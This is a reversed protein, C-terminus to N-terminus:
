PLQRNIHICYYPSYQSCHAIGILLFSVIFSCSVKGTGPGGCIYMFGPSPLTMGDETRGTKISKTMFEKINDELRGVRNSMSKSKSLENKKFCPHLVFQCCELKDKVNSQKDPPAVYTKDSSSQSNASSDSSKSQSAKAVEDDSGKDNTNVVEDDSRRNWSATENSETLSMTITSLATSSELQVPYTKDSSLHMRKKKKTQRLAVDASSYTKKPATGPLDDSKRKKTIVNSDTDDDDNSDQKSSSPSDQTVVAGVCYETTSCAAFTRSSGDSKSDVDCESNTADKVALESSSSSSPPSFKENDGNNEPSSTMITSPLDVSVEAPTTGLTRNSFSM